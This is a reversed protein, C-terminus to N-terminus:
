APGGGLLRSREGQQVAVQKLAQVTDIGGEVGPEGGFAFPQAVAGARDGLRQQVLLRLGLRRNRCRLTQQLDVPGM